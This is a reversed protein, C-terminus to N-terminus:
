CLLVVNRRKQVLKQVNNSQERLKNNSGRPGLCSQPNEVFEQTWDRLMSSNLYMDAGAPWIAAFLLLTM